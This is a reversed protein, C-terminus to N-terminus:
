YKLGMVALLDEGFFILVGGAVLLIGGVKQTPDHSSFSMGFVIIGFFAILVGIVQAIGFVEDALAGVADKADAFAVLTTSMLTVTAVLIFLMIKILQNTDTRKIKRVKKM